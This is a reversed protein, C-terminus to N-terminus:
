AQIFQQRDQPTLFRRKLEEPYDENLEDLTFVPETPDDFVADVVLFRECGHCVGDPKGTDIQWPNRNCDCSYNGEAFDWPRAQIVSKQGTVTDLVLATMAHVDAM